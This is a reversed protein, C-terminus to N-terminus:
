YAPSAARPPVRAVLYGPIATVAVAVLSVLVFSSLAAPAQVQLVVPFGTISALFRSGLYGSYSGFAAGISCGAVLLVASECLLWRWLVGQRYGDVKMFAILNRRQWVMSGMAATVALVAAILVLLRIQTLRSLAQAAVAYHRQQRESLTEVVFGAGSGVGSGANSGLAHRVESQVTAIATGPLAQIEYASPDSSGWARAYDTAGMVIAGPPWGLNTGIAAVRLVIPRPAPLEFAQGVRLRHEDALAQSLVAWGGQRVRTAALTPDGGVIQSVPIPQPSSAPPALVWVRHLGWDLFGGRYLGVAGVGPLRALVHSYTDRFSTTAFSNAEGSPTVWLEAGSDIGRAAADLGNTLNRQIGQFEVAGYVAIAATMAIALSRVRTQPTRLEIVALASAVTNLPRQVRAFLAVLGDFLYPLLCVLAVVLAVNGVVAGQTGAVSLIMTFALCLVGVAVRVAAWSRRRGGTGVEAGPARSVVNRLPWLVGVLAAIMGAGIALAVSQWTVIRDNGVPFAFSLYGPTTHFVAVSLLEGLALGIACALVGLVLADFLLIQVLMARTAGQLRVEEILRRRAPVTILMANLAFMFGVLASIASFLDESKNEPAVATAFLQADYDGPELNLGNARALGALAAGVQRERGPESRVVVRTIRGRMGTLRQAYRVSTVAIPSNIAGAIEGEGLAAGLLTPMVRDGVQLKIQQLSGAGIAHALPAPLAIANLLALPQASFHQLLPGGASAFRPDISILDVSAQGGPGIVNVERELVPLAARVGPVARVRGLLREDFGDPGRSDLQFQAGGVVQRDLQAVSGSLSTSAVHSAFLLAVGIAIGFLAFGEQVLLVRARLRARFLYLVGSLSM